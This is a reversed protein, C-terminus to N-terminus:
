SWLREPYDGRAMLRRIGEIVRPRDERYTVGFWSDPTPLVKCRAQGAAILSNIATPIYFEASRIAAKSTALVGRITRAPPRVFGAYFGM